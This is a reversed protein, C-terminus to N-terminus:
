LGMGEYALDRIRPHIERYVAPFGLIHQAYFISIHNVPDALAYAGAAGDWGFEGPFSRSATRDILVRVGLGYGYGKKGTALFDELMRGTLYNTSLLDISEPSLIRAGNRAIGDNCLADLFDSYDSVTGILGAGGSEYNPTFQFSSAMEPSAPKLEGTHFDAAYLTSLRREQRKDPLFTFDRLGLPSFINEHLYQGFRMGSVAEVVAALVDHALSYGWRTGPEYILPMQAIASMMERTTAQNGSGRKREALFPSQTDYSLGATMSLLDILRINSHALHCPTKEDPWQIPFRMDFRDAVRLNTFEPLYKRIDDYLDLRNQEMLQLVATSTIVKTASYLRYLDQQSVSRSGALDSHGTMHRYVIKHNWTIQCDTAPIHYTEQLSDQFSKLKKFDMINEKRRQELRKKKLSPM